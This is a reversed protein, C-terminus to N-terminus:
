FRPGSGVYCQGRITYCNAMKNADKRRMGSGGCVNCRGMDIREGKCSCGGSGNCCETEWRGGICMECPILEDEPNTVVVAVSFSQLCHPCEVELKSM